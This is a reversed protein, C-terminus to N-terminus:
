STAWRAPRAARIPTRRTPLSPLVDTTKNRHRFTRNLRRMASDDVLAITVESIPERLSGNHELALLVKRTFAGIDRRSFRTVAAGSVEVHTL